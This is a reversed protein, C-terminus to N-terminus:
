SQLTLELCVLFTMSDKEVACSFNWEAVGSPLRGVTNDNFDHAVPGRWAKQPSGGLALRFTVVPMTVLTDAEAECKLECYGRGNAMKFNAQGKRDGAIKPKIMLRFPVNPCVQFSPSVVQKDMGQLKRAHVPWIVKVRRSDDFHEISLQRTSAVGLSDYRESLPVTQEDSSISTCDSDVASAPALTPTSANSLYKTCEVSKLAHVDGDPMGVNVVGGCAYGQQLGGISALQFQLGDKLLRMSEQWLPDGALSPLASKHAGQLHELGPPPPCGVSSVSSICQM